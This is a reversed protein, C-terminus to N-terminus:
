DLGFHSLSELREIPFTVPEEVLIRGEITRANGLKSLSESVVVGLNLRNLKPTQHRLFCRAQKASQCSRSDSHPLLTLRLAAVRLPEGVRRSQGPAFGQTSSTRCLLGSRPYQPISYRRYRLASRPVGWSM